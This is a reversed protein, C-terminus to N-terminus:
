EDDEEEEEDKEEEEEAMEDADKKHQELDKKREEVEKEWELTPDDQETPELSPILELSPPALITFAEVANRCLGDGIYMCCSKKGKKWGCSCAGHWRMNEVCVVKDKGFGRNMRLCWRPGKRRGITKDESLPKPEEDEEEEDDDEEEEEESPVPIKKAKTIRGDPRMEKLCHKWGGLVALGQEEDDVEIDDESTKALPEVFCSHRIRAILCRLFHAERGPFFPYRKWTTHSLSGSLKRCVFRSIQIQTPTVEPLPMWDDGLKSCVWYTRENVGVHVEVQTELSFPLPPPKKGDEEEEEDSKEEEEEEEEEGDGKKDKEEEEDSKEEEEEEEEEQVIDKLFMTADLIVFLNELFASLHLIIAIKKPLDVC